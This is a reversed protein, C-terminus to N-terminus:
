LMRIYFQDFKNPQPGVDKFASMRLYTAACILGEFIRLPSM